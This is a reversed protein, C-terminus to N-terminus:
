IKNQEKDGGAFIELLTWLGMSKITEHFLEDPHKKRIQVLKAFKAIVFYKGIIM